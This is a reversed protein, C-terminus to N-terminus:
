ESKWQPHHDAARCGQGPDNGRCFERQWNFFDDEGLNSVSGTITRRQQSGYGTVVLEEGIEFVTEVLDVDITTRGDIGVEQTDFGIFSFVLTDQLSAVTLSYAGDIDSTTGEFTGKIVINVGPLPEASTADRVTGQVQSQASASVASFAVLPILAYLLLKIKM